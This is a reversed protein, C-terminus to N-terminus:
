SVYNLTVTVSECDDQNGNTDNFQITDAGSTSGSGGNAALETNAWHLAVATGATSPAPSGDLLFNAGTCSPNSTTIYASVGSVHEKQTTSNNTVTVTFPQSSDGPYMANIASTAYTLNSSGASTSATGTGTGSSTWYALAVGGGGLVIAMTAWLVTLRRKTSFVRKLVTSM